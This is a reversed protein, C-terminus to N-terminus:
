RLAPSIGFRQKEYLEEWFTSEGPARAEHAGRRLQEFDSDGKLLEEVVARLCVGVDALAQLPPATLRLEAAKERM